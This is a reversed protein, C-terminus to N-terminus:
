AAGDDDVMVSARTAMSTLEARAVLPAVDLLRRQARVQFGGVLHGGAAGARGRRRITMSKMSM